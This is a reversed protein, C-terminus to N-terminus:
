WYMRMYNHMYGTALMEWQAANWWADATAGKELTALPHLAPRTDDAHEELSARAWGPIAQWGDYDEPCYRSSWM